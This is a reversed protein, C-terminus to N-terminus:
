PFPEAPDYSREPFIGLQYDIGIMQNTTPAGKEKIVWEIAARREEKTLAAYMWRRAENIDPNEGIHRWLLGYAIQSPTLGADGITKASKATDTM